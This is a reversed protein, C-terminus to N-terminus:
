KCSVAYLAKVRVTSNTDHDTLQLLTQLAGQNLLYYQVEPMNQACSAILQAARWRIGAESHRLCRSMCLDLGGLKMLDALCVCNVCMAFCEHM